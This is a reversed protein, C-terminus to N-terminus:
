TSLSYRAYRVTEGYRNIGTEMVSAIKFGLKRLDYIRAALRAIGLDLFAERTSISGFDLIYQIVKQKQSKRPKKM